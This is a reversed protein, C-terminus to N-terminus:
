VTVPSQKKSSKLIMETIALPVLWCAWAMIASVLIFDLLFVRALVISFLRFVTFGCTVVYSKVMWEQHQRFDRKKIAMLAFGSTTFWALAFGIMGTGFVYRQQIIIGKGLAMVIAGLGAILISILYIRGLLRHTQPKKKRISPFFQFPGMFLATMGFVVHSVLFPGFANQLANTNFYRFPIHYAFYLNIAIILLWVLLYSYKKKM